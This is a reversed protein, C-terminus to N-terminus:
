RGAVRVDTQERPLVKRLSPMIGTTVFKVCKMCARSRRSSNHHHHFRAMAFCSSSHLPMAQAGIGSAMERAADEGSRFGGERERARREEGNESSKKMLVGSCLISIYAQNRKIANQPFASLVLLEAGSVQTGFMAESNITTAPMEEDDERWQTDRQSNRSLCDAIQMRSGQRYELEFDFESLRLVWRGLRGSRNKQDLLWKLNKHDTILRPRNNRTNPFSLGISCRTMMFGTIREM